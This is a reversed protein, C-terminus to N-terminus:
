ILYLAFVFCSRKNGLIATHKDGRGSYGDLDVYKDNYGPALLAFRRGAEAFSGIGDAKCLVM